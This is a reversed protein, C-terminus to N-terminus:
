VVQVMGMKIQMWIFVLLPLNLQRLTTVIQIILVTFVHEKEFVM